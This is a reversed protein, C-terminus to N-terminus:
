FIIYPDDNSANWSLTAYMCVYRAVHDLGIREAEGTELTYNLKVFLMRAEGGVLDLLSEYMAVPLDTHRALPNMQLFLPSEHIETIQRQISIEQDTPAEGTCYWGLFDMDSFVQKFQGEKVAYYDMDIIVKGEVLTYDLECSNMIEIDRGKQKGIIAGYVNTPGREAVKIRTWHESINMIVLPHLRVSVSGMVNSAALVHSNSTAAAPVNDSPPDVEM